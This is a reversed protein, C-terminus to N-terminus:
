DSWHIFSGGAAKELKAPLPRISTLIQLLAPICGDIELATGEAQVMYIYKTDTMTVRHIVVQQGDADLGTMAVKGGVLGYQSMVRSPPKPPDSDVIRPSDVFLIRDYIDPPGVTAPRADFVEITGGRKPHEPHHFVTSHPRRVGLWGGPVDYLYMRRRDTGLAMYYSTAIERVLEAVHAELQPFRVLGDIWAYSDEGVIMAVTRVMRGAEGDVTLTTIAGYEGESTHFREIPGKQVLPQLEPELSAVLEDLLDKLRRLPRRREFIQVAATEIGLPPVLVVGEATHQRHWGQIL